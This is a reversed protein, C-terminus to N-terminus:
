ENKIMLITFVSRTEKLAKNKYQGKVTVTTM